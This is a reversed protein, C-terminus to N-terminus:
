GDADDVDARGVKNIDTERDLAYLADMLEGGRFERFTLRGSGNRRIGLPVAGCRM